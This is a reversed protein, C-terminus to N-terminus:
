AYEGFETRLQRLARSVHAEVSKVSINLKESVERYKLGELRNLRFVMQCQKPLRAISDEIQQAMEASVYSQHPSDFADFYDYHFTDISEKEFREHLSSRYYCICQNKIARYLYAKASVQVQLAQRNKWIKLLVDSVVEEAIEPSPVIKAAYHCLLKYYKRFLYEFAREDNLASIRELLEELSATRM